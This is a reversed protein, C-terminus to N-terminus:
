ANKWLNSLRQGDKSILSEAERVDRKYSIMNCVQHWNLENTAQHEGHLIKVFHRQQGRALKKSVQLLCWIQFKSSM